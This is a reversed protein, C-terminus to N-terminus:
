SLRLSRLYKYSETIADIPSGDCRDQEVFIHKAGAQKVHEFVRAWDIRGQGVPAFPNAGPGPFADPNVTAGKKLDKIHLLPFHGPFRRFWVLPDQGSYTIWFIDMEMKVVSPDCETLLITYGNTSGVHEFERIHNHYTFLVGAPKSLRGCENFLAALKKWGDATLSETNSTGTYSLGLAHARDVWKKWDDAVKPLPYHGSVAHLGTQRLYGKTTAVPLHPPLFGALEVEKYGAGAVQKLTGLPDKAYLSRVTYIQLGIPGPWAPRGAAFLETVSTLNTVTAAGAAIGGTIATQLFKRRTTM